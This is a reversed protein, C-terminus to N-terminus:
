RERLIAPILIRRYGVVRQGWYGAFQSRIIGKSSSAHYFSREDAVIGVHALGEFFVLTGYQTKEKPTAEPLGEWLRRTPSREFEVGAEYFVRWIFGSCDYGRDDTGGYKYPRGLRAQVADTLNFLIEATYKGTYVIYNRSNKSGSLKAPTDAGTGQNLPARSRKVGSTFFSEEASIKMSSAFTTM